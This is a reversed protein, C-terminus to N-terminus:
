MLLCIREDYALVKIEAEFEKSLVNQNDWYVEVRKDQNGEVGNVNPCDCHHISVGKRQYYLRHNEDGPVPNCCKALRILINDIGKVHVGTGSKFSTGRNKHASNRGNGRKDGM